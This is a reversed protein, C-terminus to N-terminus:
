KFKSRTQFPTLPKGSGIVGVKHGPDDTTRFISKANIPEIKKKKTSHAFQQWGKARDAVEDPKEKREKKVKKKYKAKSDKAMAKEGEAVVEELDVSAARKSARLDDASRDESNGYGNYKVRYTERGSSDVNVDEIVADYWKNDTSFRASVTQGVRFRTSGAEDAEEGDEEDFDQNRKTGSSATQAGGAAPKPGLLAILDQLDTKLKLLEPNTPDKELAETVTDLQYQYEEVDEAM